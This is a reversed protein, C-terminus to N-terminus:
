AHWSSTAGRRRCRAPAIRADIYALADDVQARARAETDVVFFDGRPMGDDAPALVPHNHDWSHCGIALRDSAAAAAWWDEDMWGLGHLCERDLVARAHPDAIVFSTLHPSLGPHMAAADELCGLFGRQRGQGPWDADAVDLVTGDDASLAVCRHLDRDALGLRQEVVWQLPVVRWGGAALMALDAALAVHDNQAYDPGAVNAAHYTLVPVRLAGSM